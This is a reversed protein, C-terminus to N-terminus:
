MPSWVSTSALEGPEMPRPKAAQVREDLGKIRAYGAETGPRDGYWVDDFVRVGLVLEEAHEPLAVGAEAALEDATRGPRPDLIVREELGRAIARLRERIAEAWQGAAAHREALARHDKAASPTGDLLADRGSKTNRGGRAWWLVLGVVALILVVIVIMAIVGGGGGGPGPGQTRQFLSDLWQGVKNFFKDLVSPQDRHYIPKDLERRALERAQDRGIPDPVLLALGRWAGIM